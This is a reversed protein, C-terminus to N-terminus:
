IIILNMRNEEYPKGNLGTNGSSLIQRGDIYIDTAAWRGMQIGVTQNKFSGDLRFRISFWCEVRGNRDANKISLETPNFKKWDTTSIDKGAWNTDNGKRFIWGDKANLNIVQFNADFMSTDLVVASDQATCFNHVFLFLILIFLKSKM